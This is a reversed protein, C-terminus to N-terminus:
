AADPLVVSGEAGGSLGSDGRGGDPAVQEQTAVQEVFPAGGCGAALVLLLAGARLPPAAATLQEAKRIGAEYGEAYITQPDIARSSWDIEERGYADYRRAALRQSLLHGDILNM